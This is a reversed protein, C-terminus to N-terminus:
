LLDRAGENILRVTNVPLSQVYLYDFHLYDADDTVNERGSWILFALTQFPEERLYTEPDFETPPARNMVLVEMDNSSVYPRSQITLAGPPYITAIGLCWIYTAM